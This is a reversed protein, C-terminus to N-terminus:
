RTATRYDLKSQVFTTSNAAQAFIPLFLLAPKVGSQSVDAVLCSNFCDTPLQVAFISM